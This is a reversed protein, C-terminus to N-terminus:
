LPSAFFAAFAPAHFSSPSFSVTLLSVGAIAVWADAATVIPPVMVSVAVTLPPELGVPM